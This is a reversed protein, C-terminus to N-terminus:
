FADNKKKIPSIGTEKKFLTSFYKPDNYGSLEAVEEVTYYGSELLSAAYQIRLANLYKLPTTNLNEKFLNRLYTSSINMKSAFMAVNLSPDTFNTHIYDILSSFDKKMSHSEKFKQIAINELIKSFLSDIRYEYGVNKKYWATHMKEFLDIFIEPNIPTFTEISELNKDIIDFHIVLVTENKNSQITYDYDKPVYMLDNKKIHFSDKGHTFTADGELHLSLAHYPRPKAYDTNKQWSLKLVSIIKFYFKNSNFM